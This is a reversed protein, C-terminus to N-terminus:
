QDTFLVIIICIKSFRLFQSDGQKTQVHLYEVEGNPITWATLFVPLRRLLEIQPRQGFNQDNMQLSERIVPRYKLTFVWPNNYLCIHVYCVFFFILWFTEWRNVTVTLHMCTCCSNHMASIVQLYALFRQSVHQSLSLRTKKKLYQLSLNSM